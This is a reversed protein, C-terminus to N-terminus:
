GELSVEQSKFVRNVKSSNIHELHIKFYNEFFNDCNQMTLRTINLNLLSNINGSRIFEISKLEGQNLKFNFMKLDIGFGLLDCLKFEFYFLLNFFNKTANELQELTNKLLNFIETNQQHDATTRNVLEIIKFGAQMKDYDNFISNYARLYEANSVLHLDKNEKFYFFLNLYAMSQLVGGWRTKSSRVGRAIGRIKGHSKTYFTVIKSTERYNTYKLVIAETKILSM